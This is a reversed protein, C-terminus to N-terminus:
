GRYLFTGITGKRAAHILRLANGKSDTFHKTQNYSKPPLERYLQWDQMIVLTRGPIFWPTFIRWWAENVEFTRGVDIYAFEIPRDAWSVEAINESEYSTALHRQQVVLKDLISVNHAEFLPLFSEGNRPRNSGNYHQDMYDSHWVFSDFVWLKRSRFYPSRQLGHLIFFTSRGLWCGLEVAEGIGSFYQGLWHYYGAEEDNIMGPTACHQVRESSWPVFPGDTYRKYHPSVSLAFRARALRALTAWRLFNLGGNLNKRVTM